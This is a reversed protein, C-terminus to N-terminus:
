TGSKLQGTATSQAAPMGGTMNNSDVFLYQYSPNGEKNVHESQVSRFFTEAFTDTFECIKGIDPKMLCATALNRLGGFYLHMAIYNDTDPRIEGKKKGEDLIDFLINAMERAFDISEKNKHWSKSSISVYVIWAVHPNTQYFQLYWWTMKRIKSLSGKLGGLHDRIEEVIKRTQEVAITQLLHEKDTFYRYIAAQSVGAKNGIDRMTAEHFDMNTFVSM